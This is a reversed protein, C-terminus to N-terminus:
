QVGLQSESMLTAQQMIILLMSSAVFRHWKSVTDLVLRMHLNITCYYCSIDTLELMVVLGISYAIEFDSTVKLNSAWCCSRSVCLDTPSQSQRSRGRSLRSGVAANVLLM